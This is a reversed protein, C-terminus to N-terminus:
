SEIDTNSSSFQSPNYSEHHPWPEHMPVRKMISPVDGLQYRANWGTSTSVAPVGNIKLKVISNIAKDATKAQEAGGNNQVKGKLDISGTLRLKGTSLLDLGSNATVKFGGNAFEEHSGVVVIKKDASVILNYDKGINTVMNEKSFFNINRGAEINVDRDAKFNFDAESHISVSDKAYIDIKGAATMEIWATGNANAIYIINATDNLLVQHGSASRLRILQNDGAQDGDDMVFTHGGKRSVPVVYKQNKYGITGKRGNPDLPGPTSIGFVASPIERRASSTTLGRYKDALLGQALLRDAFPHVPKLESNPKFQSNQDKKTLFEGVPVSKVGGYKSQQGPAWAVKDSSALGPLMHNQWRDQICGIWYGQNTDGGVFICLVKTGIDPPIMWMGYSKQVDDFKTKENGEWLSSTVGYFPSLYSLPVTQGKLEPVAPIGTEIIAEVEGMYTPDVHSTIRAVYPGSSPLKFSKREIQAM